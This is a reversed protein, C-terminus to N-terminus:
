NTIQDANAPVPPELLRLENAAVPEEKLKIDDIVEMDGAGFGAARVMIRQSAHSLQDFVARQADSLEPRVAQKPSPMFYNSSYTFSEIQPPWKEDWQEHLSSSIKRGQAPSLTLKDDLQVVLNAIIADRYFDARLDAENKFAAAKEAPLTEDVLKAVGQQILQHPDTSENAGGIVVQRLGQLWMQQENQDQKTVFEAVFDDFWIISASILKDRETDTPKAVRCAFSLEVKLMPEFAQRLQKQLAKQADANLAPRGGVIAFQARASSSCAIIVLAIASYVFRLNRFRIRIM